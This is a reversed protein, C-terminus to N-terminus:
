LKSSLAELVDASLNSLSQKRHKSREPINYGQFAVFCQPIRCGRGSIAELHGDIYWLM